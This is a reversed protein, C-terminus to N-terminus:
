YIFVKAGVPLIQYVTELDEDNMRVCGHTVALGLFRKYLTGHILYGRGLNLAYDGLVGYEFRSHHDAPPVPLSEEVFAWDPKRWVPNVLKGKVTFVGKPTEFMWSKQQDLELKVYSGTSCIGERILRKNQYLAFTNGTTNIVLHSGGPTLRELKSNLRKIDGRIKDTSPLEPQGTYEYPAQKQYILPCNMLWPVFILLWGFILVVSGLMITVGCVWAM